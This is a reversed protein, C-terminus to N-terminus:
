VTTLLAPEVYNRPNKGSHFYGLPKGRLPSQDRSIWDIM